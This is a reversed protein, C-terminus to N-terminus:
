TIAELHMLLINHFRQKWIHPRKKHIKQIDDEELLKNLELCEIEILRSQIPVNVLLVAYFSDTCVMGFM